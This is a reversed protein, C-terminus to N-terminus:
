GMAAPVVARDPRPRLEFTIREQPRAAQNMHFDVGNKRTPVWDGHFGRLKVTRLMHVSVIREGFQYLVCNTEEVPGRNM